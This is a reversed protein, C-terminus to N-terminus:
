PISVKGEKSWSPRPEKISVTSEHLGHAAQM